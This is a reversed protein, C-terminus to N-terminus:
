FSLRGSYSGRGFGDLQEPGVWRNRRGHAESKSGPLEGLAGIIFTDGPMRGVVRESGALSAAVGYSSTSWEGDAPEVYAAGAEGGIRAGATVRASKRTGCGRLIRARHRTRGNPRAGQHGLVSRRSGPSARGTGTAKANRNFTV